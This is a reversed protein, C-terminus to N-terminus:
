DIHILIQRREEAPLRRYHSIIEEPVIKTLRSIVRQAFTELDLILSPYREKIFGLRARLEKKTLREM